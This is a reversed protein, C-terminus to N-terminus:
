LTRNNGKRDGSANAHLIMRGKREPHDWPDSGYRSEGETLEWDGKLELLVGGPEAVRTDVCADDGSDTHVTDRALLTATCTRRQVVVGLAIM